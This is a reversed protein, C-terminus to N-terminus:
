DQPASPNVTRYKPVKAQKRVADFLKGIGIRGGYNEVFAPMTGGSDTYILYTARTKNRGDPELLWSGECREVRVVGRKPAPGDENAPEWRIRYSVGDASQKKVQHVRLTYDRGSMLPLDLRQYALLSDREHKLVRSEATYPMFTPYAQRDEVVAYVVDTPADILGVGKYEKLPSGPRVRSYIAVGNSSSEQTWEGTEHEGTKQARTAPTFLMVFLAAASIHSLKM